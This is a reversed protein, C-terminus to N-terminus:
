KMYFQVVQKNSIFIQFQSFFFFWFIYILLFFDRLHSLHYLVWRGICSIYSVCTQDRSPSSERSSPMVVWELVRAQLIGHVSSGSPSHDLPNYLTLCLHLLKAHGMNKGDLFSCM